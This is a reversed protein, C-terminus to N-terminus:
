ALVSSSIASAVSAPFAAADVGSVHAVLAVRNEFGDVFGQADAAFGVNGHFDPVDFDGAFVVPSAHGFDDGFDVGSAGGAGVYGGVGVGVGRPVVIERGEDRGPRVIAASGFEDLAEFIGDGALFNAFVHESGGFIPVVFPLLDGTGVGDHDARDLIGANSEMCPLRRESIAFSQFLSGM